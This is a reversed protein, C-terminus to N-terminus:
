RKVSKKDGSCRAALEALQRRPPISPELLVETSDQDWPGGAQDEKRYQASCSQHHRM